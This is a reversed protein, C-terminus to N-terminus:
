FNNGAMPLIMLVGINSNKVAPLSYTLSLIILLFYHHTFIAFIFNLTFSHQIAERIEIYISM